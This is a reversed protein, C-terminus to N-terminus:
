PSATGFSPKQKRRPPTEAGYRVAAPTLADTAPRQGDAHYTFPTSFNHTILQSNSDSKDIQVSMVKDLYIPFLQFLQLSLKFSSPECGRAPKRRALQRPTRRWNNKVNDM